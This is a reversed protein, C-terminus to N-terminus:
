SAMMDIMANGLSNEDRAQRITQAAKNGATEIDRTANGSDGRMNIHVSTNSHDNLNNNGRRDGFAADRVTGSQDLPSTVIREPSPVSVNGMLWDWTGVALAKTIKWIFPLIEQLFSLIQDLTILLGDTFTGGKKTMHDIANIVFMIAAGIAAVIAIAVWGVSMIMSIATVIGGLLVLIGATIILKLILDIHGAMKVMIDGVMMLLEAGVKIMRVLFGSEKANHLAIKISQIIRGLARGIAHGAERVEPSMLFSIAEDLLDKMDQRFSAEGIALFFLDWNDKLTSLKGALTKAMKDMGGKFRLNTDNAVMVTFDMLDKANARIKHMVREGGLTITPIMFFGEGKETVKKAGVFFNDLQASLGKVGSSFAEMMSHFSKGQSAAVDGLSRLQEESAELGLNMLTTSGAVLEKFSFPTAAGLTQLESIKKKAKGVAEETGGFATVMRAELTEFEANVNFTHKVLRSLANVIPKFQDALRGVSKGTRKIIFGTSRIGQSLTEFGSVAGSLSSRIVSATQIAARSMSSFAQVVKRGAAQFARGTKTAAVQNNPMGAFATKLEDGVLKGVLRIAKLAREVNKLHLFHKYLGPPMYGGPMDPMGTPVSAAGSAQGPMGPPFNPVRARIPFPKALKEAIKQRLVHAEGLVKKVSEEELTIRLKAPEKLQEKLKKLGNAVKTLANLDINSGISGLKMAKKKFKDLAKAAGLLAANDVIYRLSVVAEAISTSPM